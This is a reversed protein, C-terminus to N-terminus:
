TELLTEGFILPDISVLVHIGTRTQALVEVGKRMAGKIHPLLSSIEEFRFDSLFISIGKPNRGAIALGLMSPAFDGERSRPKSDPDIFDPTACHKELVDRVKPSLSRTDSVRGFFIVTRQISDLLSPETVFVDGHIVAL